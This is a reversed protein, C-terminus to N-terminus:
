GRVVLGKAQPSSDKYSMVDKVIEKDHLGKYGECFNFFSLPIIHCRCLIFLFRASFTFLISSLDEEDYQSEMMALVFTIEKSLRCHDM